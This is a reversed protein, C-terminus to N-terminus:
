GRGRGAAKQKQEAAVVRVADSDIQSAKAHTQNRQKQIFLNM